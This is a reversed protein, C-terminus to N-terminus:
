ADKKVTYMQYKKGYPSEFKAKSLAGYEFPQISEHTEM